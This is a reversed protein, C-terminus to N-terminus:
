EGTDKSLEVINSRRLLCYLSLSPGDTSRYHAIAPVSCMHM